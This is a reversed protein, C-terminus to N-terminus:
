AREGTEDFAPLLPRQDAEGRVDDMGAVHQDASAVVILVTKGAADYLEHLSPSPAVRVVAKVGDKITIQELEGAVTTRGDAAIGQVADHVCSLVRRRLRDIIEDQQAQSLSPWPRPMLRIEALLAQLLELGVSASVAQVTEANM